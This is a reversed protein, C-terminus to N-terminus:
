EGIVDRTIFCQCNIINGASLSADGPHMCNEGGVEFLENFNVQQQDAEIHADRSNNYTTNWTKKMLDMIGLENLEKNTLLWSAQNAATLVETRAITRYNTNLGRFYEIAAGASAGEKLMAILGGKLEQELSDTITTTIIKFKREMIVPEIYRNYFKGDLAAGFTGAAYAAAIRAAKRDHNEITLFIDNQKKNILASIENPELAEKIRKLSEAAKIKNEIIKQEELRDIIDDLINHMLPKLHMRLSAEVKQIRGTPLMRIKKFQHKKNRM